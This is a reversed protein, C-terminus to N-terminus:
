AIPMDRHECYLPSSADSVLMEASALAPPVGTFDQTLSLVVGVTSKVNLMLPAGFLTQISHERLWHSASWIRRSEDALRHIFFGSVLDDRCINWSLLWPPM